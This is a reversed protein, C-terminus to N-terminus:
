ILYHRGPSPPTTPRRQCARLGRSILRIMSLKGLKSPADATYKNRSRVSVQLVAHSRSSVEIRM